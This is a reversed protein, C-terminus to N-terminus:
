KRTRRKKAIPKKLVKNELLKEEALIRREEQEVKRLVRQVSMELSMMRRELTVLYRLGYLIAVLGGLTLWNVISQEFPVAM